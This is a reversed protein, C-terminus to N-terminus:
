LARVFTAYALEAFIMARGSASSSNDLQRIRDEPGPGLDIRSRHLCAHGWTVDGQPLTWKGM